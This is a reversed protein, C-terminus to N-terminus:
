SGDGAPAVTLSTRSLAREVAGDVIGAVAEAAQAPLDAAAARLEEVLVPGLIEVLEAVVLPRHRDLEARVVQRTTGEDAGDLKAMIAAQGALVGVIGKSANSSYRVALAHANRAQMDRTPSIVIRENWVKDVDEDTLPMDDEEGLAVALVREMLRRDTLRRRDFGAHWHDLHSLDATVTRNRVNDWGTVTRGDTTGYVERVGDLKGARMAAILRGTQEAMLKRNRASGWEGPVFDFGAIHRMQEVTLGSQVTYTRSTAWRSNLIWEQSRHSGSLHENDGKTGAATRPRGTRRTLEDGLWDLEPAVVERGWWPEAQLQAYNTM